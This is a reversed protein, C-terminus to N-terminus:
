RRVLVTDWANRGACYREDWEHRVVNYWKGLRQVLSNIAVEGRRRSTHEHFSVVVQKAVPAHLRDLIDFEGGEMNLKMLDFEQVDCLRMVKVLSLCSVAKWPTHDVKVHNPVVYRAEPDGTLVLKGAGDVGEPVLALALFIVRELDVSEEGPDMAVVKHGRAAFFRAFEFGRSGVDLITGGPTLLELDVSHNDIVTLM